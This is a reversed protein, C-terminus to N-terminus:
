RPRGPRYAVLASAVLCPPEVRWIRSYDTLRFAVLEASAGDGLLEAVVPLLHRQDSKLAKLSERYSAEYDRRALALALTEEVRARFHAELAAPDTPLGSMEEESSYVHGYHVLDGSTVVATREDRLSDLVRALQTATHFSGQPDRTLLVYVPLVPVPARDHARAHAVMLSLFIDLSFESELIAPNGRLIEREPPPPALPAEGFPTALPGEAFFAGGLEDFIGHVLPFAEAGSAAWSAYAEHLPRYQKPLTGGHLVGLALVREAGAADIAAVVRAVPEVSAGLTTHPFSLVGGARLLDALAPEGHRHRRVTELVLARGEPSELEGRYFAKWDM